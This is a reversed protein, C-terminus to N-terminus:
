ALIWNSKGKNLSKLESSGEPNRCSRHEFSTSVAHADSVLILCASPIGLKKLGQILSPVLWCKQLRSFKAGAVDLFNQFWM